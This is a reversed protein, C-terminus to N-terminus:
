MVEGGAIPLNTGTVYAGQEGLLYLVAGAVEEPGALRGAPVSMALARRRREPQDAWQDTLVASPSVANVTIGSPALEVAMSRALGWLASKAAVYGTMNPPPKGMAATSLIHVFRGFGRSRMGPVLAQTLAFASGVYTRWYRDVEEWTLEELPKREIPPTANTVVADVRGFAEIADQALRAAEEPVSVDAQIAAGRGGAEGIARVVADAAAADSRYNVVVSAGRRGLETAISAGIGRGAGTVLVVMREIPPPDPLGQAMVKGEGTMLTEQRDNTITTELVVTRLAPSTHTVRVAVEITDGIYAPQLFRTDQALWLAGPGPLMTGVVRSLWGSLLMGHVVRGRFGLRRAFADDSHLPNDDGTLRAFEDVDRATIERTWREVDGVGLGAFPRHTM